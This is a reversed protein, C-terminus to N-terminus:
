LLGGDVNKVTIVGGYRKMTKIKDDLTKMIAQNENITKKLYMEGRKIDKKLGKRGMVTTEGPLYRDIWWKNLTKQHDKLNTVGIKNNQQVTDRIKILKQKKTFKINKNLKNKLAKFAQKTAHRVPKTLLLRALM